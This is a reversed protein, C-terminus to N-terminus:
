RKFFNQLYKADIDVSSQLRPTDAGNYLYLGWWLDENGARDIVLHRGGSLVFDLFKASTNFNKIELSDALDNLQSNYFSYDDATAYFADSDKAKMKETQLSDPWMFLLAPGFLKLTDGSVKPDPMASANARKEPAPSSCSSIILILLFAAFLNQKM